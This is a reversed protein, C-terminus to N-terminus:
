NLPTVIDYKQLGTVGNFVFPKKGNETVLSVLITNGGRHVTNIEGKELLREMAALNWDVVREPVSITKAVTRPMSVENIKLLSGGSVIVTRAAQDSRKGAVNLQVHGEKGKLRDCIGKPNRNNNKNRAYTSDMLAWISIHQNDILNLREKKLLRGTKKGKSGGLGSRSSSLSLNSPM